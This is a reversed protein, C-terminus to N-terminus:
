LGTLGQVTNCPASSGPLNDLDVARTMDIYAGVPIVHIAAVAELEPMVAYQTEWDSYDAVLGVVDGGLDTLVGRTPSSM